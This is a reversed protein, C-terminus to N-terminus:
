PHRSVLYKQQGGGREVREWKSTSVGSVVGGTVLLTLSSILQSDSFRECAAPADSRSSLQLMFEENSKAARPRETKRSDRDRRWQARRSGHPYHQGHYHQRPIGFSQPARLETYLCATLPMNVVIEEM